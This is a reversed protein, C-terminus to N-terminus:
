AANRRRLTFGLLGLGTLLLAWSSPEPVKNSIFGSFDGAMTSNLQVLTLAQNFIATDDLQGFFYESGVTKGVAFNMAQADLGSAIRSNVLAGDLYIAEYGSKADYTAAAYHWGNTGTGAMLDVPSSGTLDNNWWYNHVQYNGAMRFANVQNQNYYNGWGVM